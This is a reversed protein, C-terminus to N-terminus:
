RIETAPRVPKIRVQDSVKFVLKKLVLEFEWINYKDHQYINFALMQQCKLM